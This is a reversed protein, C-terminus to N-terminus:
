DVQEIEQEAAITAATGEDPAGRNNFRAAHTERATDRALLRVLALVGPPISDTTESSNRRTAM